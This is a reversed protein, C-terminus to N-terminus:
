FVSSFEELTKFNKDRESIIYNVEGWNMGFSDWRIGTDYKENYISSVNYMVISNDELAKFGHACGKPIFISKRSKGGLEVSIFKKYTKSNVRLDLIVDIIRGNIVNVLKDHEFPPLQFHMGRVVNKKSSTYYSEKIKFEIFIKENFYKLFYGRDDQIINNNIIYVGELKTEKIDM